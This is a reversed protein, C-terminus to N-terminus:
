AVRAACVMGYNGKGLVCGLAYRGISGHVGVGNAFGDVDWGALAALGAEASAVAHAQDSRPPLYVQSEDVGRPASNLARLSALDDGYPLYPLQEWVLHGLCRARYEHRARTTGIDTELARVRAEKERLESLTTAHQLRLEEIQAELAANVSAQDQQEAM